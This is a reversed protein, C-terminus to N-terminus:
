NKNTLFICTGSYHELRAYGALASKLLNQLLFVFRFFICCNTNRSAWKLIKQNKELFYFYSSKSCNILKQEDFFYLYWQLTGAECLWCASIKIFKTIFLCISFFVLLEHEELRVKINESKKELFYFYSSKSCNILKQEDFFYLYWQLTGAECLWCASIKIFKTIFLCISFFVLLEHEELRVKINESKKELFYFYSSKSCNILKQEDFFYLYWQLTRRSSNLIM